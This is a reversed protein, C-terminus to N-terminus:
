CRELALVRELLTSRCCQDRAALVARKPCFWLLQRALLGGVEVGVVPAQGRGGVAEPVRGRGRVGSHETQTQAAAIKRVEREAKQAAKSVEEEQSKLSQGKLESMVEDRTLIGDKTVSKASRGCTSRTVRQHAKLFERFLVM